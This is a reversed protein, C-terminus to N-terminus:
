PQDHATILRFNPWGVRRDDLAVFGGPAVDQASVFRASDGLWLDSSVLRMCTISQSLDGPVERKGRPWFGAGENPLIRSELGGLAGGMMLLPALVGGSTGSGLSV